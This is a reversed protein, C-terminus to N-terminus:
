HSVLHWALESNTLKKLERRERLLPLGSFTIPYVWITSTWSSFELVRGLTKKNFYDFWVYDGVKFENEM